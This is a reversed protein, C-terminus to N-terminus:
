LRRAEAYTSADLGNMSVLLERLFPMSRVEALIRAVAPNRLDAAHCPLILAIPSQRALHTLQQELQPFGRDTLQQLTCVPGSQSFDSMAAPVGIRASASFPSIM